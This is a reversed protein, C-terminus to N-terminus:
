PLLQKLLKLLFYKIIIIVLCVLCASNEDCISHKNLSLKSRIMEKTKKAMEKAEKRM